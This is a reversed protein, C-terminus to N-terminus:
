AGAFARDSMRGIVLAVACGGAFLVISSVVFYWNEAIAGEIGVLLGGLGLLGAAWLPATRRVGIALVVVGAIWLGILGYYPILWHSYQVTHLAYQVTSPDVRSGETSIAGLTGWTFGDIAFGAGLGIAGAVALAGGILGLTPRSRRVHFALGLLAGTMIVASLLGIGHAFQWRQYHLGIELLQKDESGRGLEKPHLINDLLFLAPGIVLALATLRRYLGLNPLDAM